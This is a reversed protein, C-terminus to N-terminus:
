LVVRSHPATGCKGGQAGPTMAGVGPSVRPYGSGCPMQTILRPRSLECLRFAFMVCAIWFCLLRCLTTANSWHWLRTDQLRATRSREPKQCPRIRRPGLGVRDLANVDVGRQRLLLDVLSQHGEGAALHLATRKDYDANDARAGLRLLHEATRVDGRACADCLKM